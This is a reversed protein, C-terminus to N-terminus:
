RPEASGRSMGGDALLPHGVSTVAQRQQVSQRGVASPRVVRGELKPVLVDENKSAMATPGWVSPAAAESGAARVATAIGRWVVGSPLKDLTLGANTNSLTPAQKWPESGSLDYLWTVELPSIPRLILITSDQYMTDLVILTFTKNWGRYIRYICVYVYLIKPKRKKTIVKSVCGSVGVGPFPVRQHHRPRVAALTSVVQGGCWVWREGATWNGAPHPVPWGVGVSPSGQTTGHRCHRAQTDAPTDRTPKCCRAPPDSTSNSYRQRLSQHQVQDVTFPTYLNIKTYSIGM